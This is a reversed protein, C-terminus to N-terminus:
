QCFTEEPTVIVDHAVEVGGEVAGFSAVDVAAAGAVVAEAALVLPAPQVLLGAVVVLGRHPGVRLDGGGRGGPVLGVRVELRERQLVAPSLGSFSPSVCVSIPFSISNYFLRTKDEAQKESVSTKGFM